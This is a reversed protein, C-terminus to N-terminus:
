FVKLSLIRWPNISFYIYNTFSNFSIDNDQDV